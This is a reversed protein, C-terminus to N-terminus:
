APKPDPKTPARAPRTPTNGDATGVDAPKVPEGALPLSVELSTGQGPTSHLEFKGGAFRVREQMGLLGFSRGAAARRHAADVDFGCGDDQVSFHLTDEQTHLRVQVHQAQAHKAVNTLASQLVRFCTIETIAPLRPLGPDVELSVKLGSAAVRERVFWRLTAALGLDDLMAPRLDLSLSRVQESLETTLASIKRIAPQQAHPARTELERLQLLVTLLNQGMEDHLEGALRRREEEQAQLIRPSLRQLEQLYTQVRQEAERRATIDLAVGALCTRDPLDVRRGTFYHPIRRGDRCLLDAEIDAHGRAFVEAVREAMAKRQEPVILDLPTLQGLQEAGYGTVQELRQNWMLFKGQDTCLTFLGPLSNIAHKLLLQEQHLKQEAQKQVSIDIGMGVVCPQGRWLFRQAAYYYPLCRRDKTYLETEGSLTTGALIQQVLETHRTRRDPPVIDSATIERMERQGYGTIEETQRNWRLFKGEADFVYFVGPLVDLAHLVFQREDRLQWEAEVRASIDTIFIQINGDELRTASLEEHIIHGDQHRLRSQFHTSEGKALASVQQIAQNEEAPVLQSIPMGVLEDRRYGTMQCLARNAFLIEGTPRRVLIGVTAQEVLERYHHESEELRRQIALREGIDRQVSQIDGNPLRLTSVDVYVKHGDKHYMWSEFRASEGPKLRHGRQESPEIVDTIRMRLLEERSYGLMKCFAANVLIYEGSARRLCIAEVAQEILQAYRQEGATRAREINRRAQAQAELSAAMRNLGAALLGFEGDAETLQARAEWQGRGISQLTQLLHRLRRTVLTSTAWWTTLMICLAVAVVIALDWALPVFTTTRLVSVDIGSAVLLAHQPIGSPIRRLSFVRPRGDIGPLSRQVTGSAARLAQFLPSHSQDSGTLTREEPYHMLLTGDQSLVALAGYHELLIEKDPPALVEPSVAANLSGILKGSADFYPASFVLLSHQTIFGRPIEDSTFRRTRQVEQFWARNSVNFAHALPVASCRFEGNLSVVALNAYLPMRARLAALAHGCAAPPASVAPLQAMLTLVDQSRAALDRYRDVVHNAALQSISYAYSRATHYREFATYILVAIAPLTSVAVLLVLRVRLSQPLPLKM